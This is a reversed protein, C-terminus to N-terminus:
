AHKSIELTMNTGRGHLNILYQIEFATKLPAKGTNNASNLNESVFDLHRHPARVSLYPYMM